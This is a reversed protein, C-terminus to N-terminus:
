FTLFLTLFLLTDGLGVREFLLFTVLDGRVTDLLLVFVLFTLFFVLTLFWLDVLVRIDLLLRLLLDEFVIDCDLLLLCDETFFCLELDRELLALVALGLDREYYM